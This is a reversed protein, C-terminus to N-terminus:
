FSLTLNSPIGGKQRQWGVEDLPEQPLQQIAIWYLSQEPNALRPKLHSLQKEIPSVPSSDSSLAGPASGRRQGPSVPTGKSSMSEAGSPGSSPPAGDSAASAEEAADDDRCGAYHQCWRRGLAEPVLMLNELRNDVSVCNKHVVMFGPAVGGRHREWLLDQVFSGSGRGKDFAYAYAFIAAGCGNRDVETRAEFTYEHVLAIDREDLLSYKTQDPFLLQVDSKASPPVRERM